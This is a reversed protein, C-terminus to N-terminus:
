KTGKTNRALYAMSEPTLKKGEGAPRAGPTKSIPRAPMPKAALAPNEKPRPSSGISPTPTKSIPRAPMPKAALAPNEKPRPSSGISPTSTKLSGGQMPPNPMKPATSNVAPPTNSPNAKPRPSSAVGGKAPKDDARNTSYSKGNYTFTKGAGLKKRADAFATSFGPKKEAM